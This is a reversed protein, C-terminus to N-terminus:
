REEERRHSGSVWKEAAVLADHWTRCGKTGPLALDGDRQGSLYWGGEYQTLWLTRVPEGCLARSLAALRAQYADTRMTSAPPSM